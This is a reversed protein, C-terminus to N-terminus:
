YYFTSEPTYITGNAAADFGYNYYDTVLGYPDVYYSNSAYLTQNGIYLESTGAAVTFTINTSSFSNGGLGYSVGTSEAVIVDTAPPPAYLHTCAADSYLRIFIDGTTTSSGNPDTTITIQNTIEVRAYITVAPLNCGASQGAFNYCYNKLINGDKDKINKLRQLGDYEYYTTLSKADTSSTLNGIADYTYTVMTADAPRIRVDDYAAGGTLALSGTFAQDSRYTWVNGALYWYSIVYSRSNPLAWSVTYPAFVSKTGTHGNGTNLGNVTSEEFGEYYFEKLAPTNAANDALAVPIKQRNSWIVGQSKDATLQQSVMLGTSGDFTFNAKPILYSNPLLSNQASWVSSENAQAPTLPTSTELAYMTAPYILTDPSSAAFDYFKTVRENVLNGNKWSHSSVPQLLNRAKMKGFVNDTTATNAYDFSYYTKDILINGQSDTTTESTKLTHYPSEYGYTTATTIYNSGSYLKKTTSVLHSIGTHLKYFALGNYPFTVADLPFCGRMGRIWFNEHFNTTYQNTIATILNNNADYTDEELLKNGVLDVQAPVSPYGSYDEYHNLSYNLQAPVFQPNAVTDNLDGKGYYGSQQSYSGNNGGAMSWNMMFASAVYDNFDLRSNVQSNTPDRDPSNFTYQKYGGEGSAGFTERVYPYVIHNGNADQMPIIGQSQKFVVSPTNNTTSYDGAYGGNLTTPFASAHVAAWSFYENYPVMIYVPMHTLTGGPYPSNIQNYNFKRITSKGSVNDTVAIQQIRLGGILTDTVGTYSDVGNWATNQGYTFTTNAGLPDQIATLTFASMDPWKAKRYAGSGSLNLIKVSPTFYNNNNGAQNNSFGWHDQDYSLRRPLTVSTQYTFVYPPKSIMGDGAIETVSSLKLRKTDTATLGAVNLVSQGTTAPSTFYTHGFAIQKLCVNNSNSYVKIYDLSYAPLTTGMVGAWVGPASFGNCSPCVNYTQSLDQRSTQAIFKVTFNNTVISSLRLGVVNTTIFNDVSSGNNNIHSNDCASTVIPATSSNGYLTSEPGLDNYSYGEPSYNFTVTEKTNPNVIRTLYWNAPMVSNADANGHAYPMVIEHSGNEGFYYQIGDEATIVWWDFYNTTANYHVNIKLNDDELLRVHRQEDFVFKGTHGNFNFTYLDPECDAAGNLVAPMVNGYFANQSALVGHQDAFGNNTGPYPLFQLLGFLGHDEYYGRPHNPWSGSNRSGEDPAGRVTRNIVGTANLAWGLGVWSALESVRIGSAHYSISIPLNISGDKLNYLPININPVGTYYGVPFDAYKGLAGANPPPQVFNNLYTSSPSTNQGKLLNAYFCLTILAVLMTFRIKM